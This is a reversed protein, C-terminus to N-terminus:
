LIHGEYQIALEEDTLNSLELKLDVAEFSERQVGNEFIGSGM